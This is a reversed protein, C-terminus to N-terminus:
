KVMADREKFFDVPSSIDEQKVQSPMDIWLHVLPLPEVDAYPNGFVNMHVIADVAEQPTDAEPHPVECSRCSLRNGTEQACDTVSTESPAPPGSLPVGSKPDHEPEDPM